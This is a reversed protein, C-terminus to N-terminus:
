GRLIRLVIGSKSNARCLKPTLGELFGTTEPTRGLMKDDLAAQYPSDIDQRQQSVDRSIRKACNNKSV